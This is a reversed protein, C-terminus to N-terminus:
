KENTKGNDNGRQYWRNEQATACPTKISNRCSVPALPVGRNEPLEQLPMVLQLGFTQGAEIRERDLQLSPRAELIAVLSLCTLLIRKMGGFIGIKPSM